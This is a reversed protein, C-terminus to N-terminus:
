AEGQLIQIMALFGDLMMGSAIRGITCVVGVGTITKQSIPYGFLYPFSETKWLEILAWRSWIIGAV